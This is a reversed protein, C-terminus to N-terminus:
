PLVAPLRGRLADPITDGPARGCDGMAVRVDYGFDGATCSRGSTRASFRRQMARRRENVTSGSASRGRVAHTYLAATDALSRGAAAVYAAGGGAGGADGVPPILDLDATDFYPGISPTFFKGLTGSCPAAPSLRRAMSAPGGTGMIIGRPCTVSLFLKTARRRAM